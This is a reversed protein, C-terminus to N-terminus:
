RVQRIPIIYTNITTKVENGWFFKSYGICLDLTYKVTSEWVKLCLDIPLRGDAIPFVTMIVYMGCFIGLILSLVYENLPFPMM